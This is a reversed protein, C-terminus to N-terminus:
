KQRAKNINKAIENMKSIDRRDADTYVGTKHHAAAAEIYYEAEEEQVENALKYKPNDALDSVYDIAKDQGIPNLLDFHNLLDKEKKSVQLSFFEKREIPVDYGMLWAESVNLAKALLYINDQKPKYRGSLYSSLAGKNIGTREILDVQKLGRLCMGEHLRESITALYMVDKQLNKQVLYLM